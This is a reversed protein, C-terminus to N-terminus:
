AARAEMLLPYTPSLAADARLIKAEMQTDLVFTFRVWIPWFDLDGEDFDDESGSLEKNVARADEPSLFGNEFALSYNGPEVAVEVDDSCIGTVSVSAAQDVFFPVVIVRKAADHVSFRSDVCIEVAVTPHSSILGFAASGQRWSFGQAVHQESWDNYPSGALSSQYLGVNTYCVGLTFRTLQNM